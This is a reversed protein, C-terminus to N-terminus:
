DDDSDSDSDSNSYSSDSDSDSSIEFSNETPTGGGAVRLVDIFVAKPDKLLYQMFELKKEESQENDEGFFMGMFGEIVDHNQHAEYEVAQNRYIYEGKEPVVYNQRSYDLLELFEKVGEKNLKESKNMNDILKAQMRHTLEHFITKAAQGPGHELNADNFTIADKIRAYYAGFATGDVTKESTINFNTPKVEIGFNSKLADLFGKDMFASLIFLSEFNKNKNFNDLANWFMENSFINEAVDGYFNRMLENYKTENAASFYNAGITQMIEDHLITLDDKKRVGYRGQYQSMLADNRLYQLSTLLESTEGKYDYQFSQIMAQMEPSYGKNTYDEFHPTDDARDEYKAVLGNLDRLEQQSLKINSNALETDIIQSINANTSSSNTNSNNKKIKDLINKITNMEVNVNLSGGAWSNDTMQETNKINTNSALKNNVLINIASLLLGDQAIHNDINVDAGINGETGITANVYAGDSTKNINMNNLTTIGDVNINGAGTDSGIIAGTLNLNGNINGNVSNSGMIGSQNSVLNSNSANYGIGLAVSGDGTFITSSSVGLSLDGGASLNVGKSSSTDALSKLILDKNVSIFVDQGNINAGLLITDGKSSLNVNGSANIVSNTYKTNAENSYYASLSGGLGGQANAGNLAGVGAIQTARFESSVGYATSNSTSKAANLNINNASDLDINNATFNVGNLNMDGMLTKLVITTADLNTINEMSESASYGNFGFGISQTSSQAALDGTAMNIAGAVGQAALLGYNLALGNNAANVNSTAQNVLSALNSTTDFSQKAYLSFGKTSINRTDKYKTTDITKALVNIADLAKISAGGIDAKNNAQINVNDANLLSMINSIENISENSHTFEVGTEVKAISDGLMMGIAAQNYDGQNGLYTGAGTKSDVSFWNAYGGYGALNASVNAVIGLADKTTTQNFTNKGAEISIDEGSMNLMGKADIKTGVLKLQNNALLYVNGGVEFVTGSTATSSTKQSINSFGLAQFSKSDYSGDFTNVGNLLFVNEGSVYVNGGAKLVSGKITTDGQSSVVLDGNTYVTSGKSNTTNTKSNTTTQFELMKTQSNVGNFVSNTNTQSSSTGDKINITKAQLYVLEDGFIGSGVINLFDDASMYIASGQINSGNSNKTATTSTVNYGNRKLFNYSSGLTYVDLVNINKANMDITGDSKISSAYINLDKLAKIALYNKASITTGNLLSMNGNKDITSLSYLNINDGSLFIQNAFLNSNTFNINANLSLNDGASLSGGASTIKNADISLNEGAKITSDSKSIKDTGYKLYVRPALVTKGNIETKIYWIIDDKLGAKQVTNLEKGIELKLEDKLKVGNDILNKIDNNSLYGLSEENIMNNLLKQEYYADGIIKTDLTEQKLQSLFYSSGYLGEQNLFKLDTTIYYKQSDSIKFIEGKPQSKAILDKTNSAKKINSEVVQSNAKDIAQTIKIVDVAEKSTNTIKDGILKVSGDSGLKAGVDASYIIKADLNWQSKPPIRTTNLYDAGLLLSFYSKLNADKTSADKLAKWATEYQHDKINAGAFYELMTLLNTGGAFYKSSNTNWDGLWEKEKLESVQINTLIDTVKKTETYASNKLNGYSLLGFDGYIIGDNNIQKTKDQSKTNIGISGGKITSLGMLINNTFSNVNIKVNGDWTKFLTDGYGVWGYGSIQNTNKNVGGEKKATNNLTNTEIDIHGIAFIDGNNTITKSALSMNSLSDIVSNNIISDEMNIDVIGGLMYSNNTLNKGKAQLLNGSAVVSNIKIDNKANLNIDGINELRSNVEINSDSNLNLGGMGYIDGLENNFVVNKAKLNIAGSSVITGTNKFSSKGNANLNASFNINLDNGSNLINKNVLSYADFNMDGITQIVGSNEFNGLASALPNLSTNSISSLANTAILSDALINGNNKFLIPTKFTAKGLAVIEGDNVFSSKATIDIENKSSIIGYNQMANSNFTFNNTTAVLGQNEFKEKTSVKINKGVLKSYGSEENTLKKIDITVDKDSGISGINSIVLDSNKIDLNETVFISGSNEIEKSINLKLNNAETNGVTVLNEAVIDLSKSLLDNSYIYKATIKSANGFGIYGENLIESNPSNFTFNSGVVSGGNLFLKSSNINVDNANITARNLGYNGVTNSIDWSNIINEGSIDVKNKASIIGNNLALEEAKIKVDDASLTKTSINKGELSINKSSLLATEINGKAKIDIEELSTILGSHRVGLGQNTSVIKVKDGWMSNLEGGDIAIGSENTTQSPTIKLNNKDKIDVTNKGAIININKLNQNYYFHSVDGTLKVTNAILNFYDGDVSAGNELINIKGDKNQTIIGDKYSGTTITVGNTNIFHAGNLNFGNENAFILDAKKGLVEIPANISSPNSSTVESIILNAEKKLNSNKEVQGALFTQGGELSNNLIVGGYIDFQNYKNHSVGKEDPNVINVLDVENQLNKVSLTESTPSIVNRQRNDAAYLAQCCVISLCAGTVFIKKIKPFILM